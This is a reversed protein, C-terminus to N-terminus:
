VANRTRKQHHVAKCHCSLYSRAVYEPVFAVSEFRIIVKDLSEVHPYGM